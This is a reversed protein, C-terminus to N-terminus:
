TGPATTDGCPVPKRVTAKDTSLAQDASTAGGRKWIDATPEQRGCKELPIPVATPSQREAKIDKGKNDSM